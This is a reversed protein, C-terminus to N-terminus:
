RLRYHTARVYMTKPEYSRPARTGCIMMRMSNKLRNARNISNKAEETAPDLRLRCRREFDDPRGLAAVLVKEHGPADDRFPLSHPNRM